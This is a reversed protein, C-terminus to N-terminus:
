KRNKKLILFGITGFILYVVLIGTLYLWEPFTYCDYEFVRDELPGLIGHCAVFYSAILLGIQLLVFLLIKYWKNFINKM